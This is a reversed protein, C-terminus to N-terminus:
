DSTYAPAEGLPVTFPHPNPAQMRAIQIPLTQGGAPALGQQRLRDERPPCQPVPRMRLQISKALVNVRKAGQTPIQMSEGVLGVPASKPEIPAEDATTFCGRPRNGHRHALRSELPIPKPGFEGGPAWSHEALPGVFGFGFRVPREVEDFTRNSGPLAHVVSSPSRRSASRQGAFIVM